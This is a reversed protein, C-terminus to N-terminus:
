PSSFGATHGNKMIPMTKPEHRANREGATREIYGM